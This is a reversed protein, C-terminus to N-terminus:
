QVRRVTAIPEDASYRTKEIDFKGRADWAAEIAGRGYGLYEALKCLDKGTITGRDRLVEIASIALELARSEASLDAYASRAILAKLDDINPEV